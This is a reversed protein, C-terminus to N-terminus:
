PRLGTQALRTGLRVGAAVLWALVADVGVQLAVGLLISPWDSASWVWPKMRYASFGLFLVFLTSFRLYAPPKTSM